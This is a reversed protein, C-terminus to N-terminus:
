EATEEMVRVPDGPRVERQGVVIVRDGPSLGRPIHVVDDQFIGVEVERPQAIGNEEVYVIYKNELSLVSFIPVTIADPYSKRVLRVRAVMGARLVGAINDLEVETVFTRTSTSATTAIRYIAGEFEQGPLADLSVTVPEGVEFFPIDREPIGVQVKVKHVQVLKVLPAGRDVFEAEENALQDVIGDFPARVVSKALQLELARVTASAVDRQTVAQDLDQPSTIGDKRLGEIRNLEQAALKERAQAQELEVRIADTDIKVLEQGRAAPDGEEVGQWEIKGAVEASLSVEEWPEVSGTLILRDEFTVPKVVRVKVNPAKEVKSDELQKRSAAEAANHFTKAAFVAVTGLAIIGVCLVVSILAKKSM